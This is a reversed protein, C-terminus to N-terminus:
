PRAASPADPRDSGWPLRLELTETLRDRDEGFGRFSRLRWVELRPEDGQGACIRVDLREDISRTEQKWDTIPVSWITVCLLAIWRRM